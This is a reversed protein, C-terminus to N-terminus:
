VVLTAGISGLNVATSPTAVLLTAAVTADRTYLNSDHQPAEAQERDRKREGRHADAQQEDHNVEGSAEEGEEGTTFQSILAVPANRRAVEAAEAQRRVLEVEVLRKQRELKALDSNYRGVLRRISDSIAIAEVTALITEISRVKSPETVRVKLEKAKEILNLIKEGAIPALVEEAFVVHFVHAFIVMIANYAGLQEKDFPNLAQLAADVTAANVSIELLCRVRAFAHAKSPTEVAGNRTAYSKYEDLAHPYAESKVRVAFLHSAAGRQPLSTACPLESVRELVAAAGINDGEAARCCALGHAALANHHDAVIAFGFRDAARRIKERARRQADDPDNGGRHAQADRLMLAGQVLAMTANRGRRATTADAVGMAARLARNRFLVDCITAAVGDAAGEEQSGVDAGGESVPRVVTELLALWQLAKEDNNHGAEASSSSSTLHAMRYYPWPVQPWQKILWLYLEEAKAADTAEGLLAYNFVMPIMERPMDRSGRQSVDAADLDVHYSTKTLHRIDERRSELCAVNAALAAACRHDEDLTSRPTTSPRGQIRQNVRTLAEKLQRAVRESDTRTVWGALSWSAADTPAVATTLQEALHVAADRAGLEALVLASLRIADEDLPMACRTVWVQDLLTRLHRTRADGDAGGDVASPTLSFEVQCLRLRAAILEPDKELASRFLAAADAPRQLAQLLRGEQFDSYAHLATSRAATAGTSALQQAVADRASRVLQILVDAQQPLSDSAAAKFYVVDAFRQLVVPTPFDRHLGAILSSASALDRQHMYATFLCLKALVDDPDVAVARRLCALAYPYRKLHFACLGMGVRVVNPCSDGLQELVMKFTHLAKRYDERLYWVVALGCHALAFHPDGDLAERFKIEAAAMFDSSSKVRKKPVINLAACGECYSVLAKQTRSAHALVSRAYPAFVSRVETDGSMAAIAAKVCLANFKDMETVGVREDDGGRNTTTGGGHELIAAILNQCAEVNGSRAADKLGAVHPHDVDDAAM